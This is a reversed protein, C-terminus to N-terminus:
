ATDNGGKPFANWSFRRFLYAAMTVSFEGEIPPFQLVFVDENLVEKGWMGCVLAREPGAVWM